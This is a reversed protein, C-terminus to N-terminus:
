HSETSSQIICDPQPLDQFDIEAQGDYEVWVVNTGKVDNKMARKTKFLAPAVFVDKNASTSKIFDIVTQRDNPWDYFYQSWAQNVDLTDKTAVYVYGEQREYLFDLFNTLDDM